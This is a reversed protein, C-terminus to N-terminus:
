GNDVDMHKSNDFSNLIRKAENWDKAPDVKTGIEIYSICDEISADKDEMIKFFQAIEGNTSVVGTVYYIKSTNKEFDVDIKELFKM